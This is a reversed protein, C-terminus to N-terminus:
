VKLHYNRKVLEFKEYNLKENELSKRFNDHLQELFLEVEFIYDSDFDFTVKHVKDTFIHLTVTM